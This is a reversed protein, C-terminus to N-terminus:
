LSPDLMCTNIGMENGKIILVNHINACLRQSLVSRKRGSKIRQTLGTWCLVLLDYLFKIQVPRVVCLIAAARPRNKDIKKIKPGTATPPIRQINSKYRGFVAVSHGFVLFINM